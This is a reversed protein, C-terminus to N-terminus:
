GIYELNIKDAIERSVALRLNGIRVLISGSDILKEINSGYVFGMAILKQKMLSDVSLNEIRGIGHLSLESLSGYRNKM